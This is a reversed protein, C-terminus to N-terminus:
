REEVWYCFNATRYPNGNTQQMLRTAETQAEERTDFTKVGKDGDKVVSERTGTVGGSVRCAIIFM